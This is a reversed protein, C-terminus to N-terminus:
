FGKSFRVNTIPFLLSDYLSGYRDVMQKTDYDLAHIRAAGGMDQRLRPDDALTKLHFALEEIDGPQTVYGADVGNNGHVLRAHDGVETVILPLGATMAELVANSMGEHLSANVYIDMARLIAPIDHRFGAFHVRPDMGLERVQRHLEHRLPGDGVILLHLQPRTKMADFMAHLLTGHDKIPTLSGVIGVVVAEPPLDFERRLTERVGESVSQLRRDDVGNPLFAVQQPTLGFQESLHRRGAHSVSTFQAGTLSALRGTWRRRASPLTTRDAGHYGLLLKTKPSLAAAITADFWCGTNRAHLIRAGLHHCLNGLAFGALRNCGQIRLPYCAVHDPLDASLPGSDRLTVVAHRHPRSGLAHLIRVLNRETGGPELSHVVHLIDIPKRTM